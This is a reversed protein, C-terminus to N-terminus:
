RMEDRACWSSLLFCFGENADHRGTQNNLNKRKTTELSNNSNTATTTSAFTTKKRTKKKKEESFSKLSKRRDLVSV